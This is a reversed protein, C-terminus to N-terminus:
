RPIQFPYIQFHIVLHLGFRLEEIECIIRFNLPCVKYSGANQLGRLIWFGQEYSGLSCSGIQLRPIGSLSVILHGLLFRWRRLVVMGKRRKIFAKCLATFCETWSELSKQVDEVVGGRKTCTVDLLALWTWQGMEEDGRTGSYSLYPGDQQDVMFTDDWGNCTRSGNVDCRSDEFM